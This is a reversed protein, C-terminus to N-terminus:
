AQRRASRFTRVVKLVVCFPPPHRPDIEVQVFQLRRPLIQLRQDRPLAREIAVDRGRLSIQITRQAGAFRRVDDHRQALAHFLRLRAPGGHDGLLAVRPRADILEGATQQQLAIGRQHDLSQVPLM